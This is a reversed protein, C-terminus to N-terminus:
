GHQVSLAHSAQITVRGQQAWAPSGILRVQRIHASKGLYAAIAAGLVLLLEEGLGEPRAAVPSPVSPRRRWRSARRGHGVPPVGSPRSWGALDDTESEM